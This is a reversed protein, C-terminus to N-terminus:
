PQKVLSGHTWSTPVFTDSVHTLIVAPNEIALLELTQLSLRLTEHDNVKSLSLLAHVAISKVFSLLERPFFM